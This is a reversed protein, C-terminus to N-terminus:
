LSFGEGVGGRARQQQGTQAFATHRRFPNLEYSPQGVGGIM